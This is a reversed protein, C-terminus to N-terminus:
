WGGNHRSPEIAVTKRESNLYNAPREFFLPHQRHCSRQFIFEAAIM